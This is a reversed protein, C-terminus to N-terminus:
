AEVESLRENWQRKAVEDSLVGIRKRVSEYNGHEFLVPLMITAQDSRDLLGEVIERRCADLLEDESHYASSPPVHVEVDGSEGPDFGWSLRYWEVRELGDGKFLARGGELGPIGALTALTETARRLEEDTPWRM